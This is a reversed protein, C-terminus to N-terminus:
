GHLEDIFTLSKRRQVVRHLAEFVRPDLLTGSHGSLHEVAEVNSIAERYARKSTLADFADAACLIRGGISIQEGALGRPYGSGDWHEHHDQVYDLVPGLHAMPSLIEMGIRVHARVEDFEAATLAAPKHLIGESIAIRGVDHLRGALRVAEVTDADLSLTEAISAALAATRQSHGRLYVDKAEMANVLAEVVSVSMARLQVTQAEVEDRIMEDVRRQESLLRRKHLARNISQELATWDIPKMLYDFAGASLAETATGADTAGTLMVFALDPDISLAERVVMVGSFGPMHVDCLALHFRGQRLLQLAAPGSQASEAVFGRSGLFRVLVTRVADDDEIVLARVPDPSATHKIMPAKSPPWLPAAATM